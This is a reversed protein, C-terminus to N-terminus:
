NRHERHASVARRKRYLRATLWFLLGLLACAFQGLALWMVSVSLMPAVIGAVISALLTFIFAQCSAATGRNEPFLDLGMLTAGPAIICMGFTYFLFPIVSWPLAPPFMSHYGVNAVCAGILFAFGILIQRPFSMKGVLRNAVLSGLFIGAVSPIFQWGFQDPGLGLHKIIFAPSAAIYLFLGAFNFSIAATKLLFLPSQFIQRYIKFLHVPHFAQRKEVPLSEPLYRYCAWLLAVTYGFLCFFIWRWDLLKVIWGGLIPAIAPAISFIMTVKSILRSAPAGDFLDRVMANGIVAGAGGCFGQLIRFLWLYEISPAVAGFVVLSVLIIKRRGFADALAGHWLTMISFALVYASLTQQVELETAQLSQQINSFAPLYTDIAFPGLMSLSGLLVALLGSSILPTTLPADASSNIPKSSPM